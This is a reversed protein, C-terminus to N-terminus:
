PPHPSFPFACEVDSFLDTDVILNKGATAHTASAYLSFYALTFNLIRRPALIADLFSAMTLRAISAPSTLIVPRSTHLRNFLPFQQSQGNKTGRTFSAPFSSLHNIASILSLTFQASAQNALLPTIYAIRIPFANLGEVFYDHM